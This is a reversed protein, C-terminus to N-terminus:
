WQLGREYVWDRGAMDKKAKKRFQKLETLIAPLLSPVDQAFKYTKDGIKFTEYTIGEINGYRREDMVYTSYCLNHATMISPYLAEFDLATIPTYYAGKQAELVTAGEYQEEPLSGYKITPVMYGLERAKKSLQSFVKIQQGREVLFSIPVWTAKAMEVLNLLICMKKMLKHPLLTDKICYEAVEGLKVPDEEVFRAFMEKPPMDIKQDGLYLKSVNNLSYSDLKYGKKVEHFLDFIFRGPMPLLKLFNDGLASSSLKKQVMHSETNKLRGLQYFELGCGNMAARRYIYELDFGFINWGTLIDIDKQQVYDKFALILERETKFSTVDEGTTDKYCLCTKEYPEDSGFKCLSIAIQFCADGPVNPDPFKGTSSNCEIDFSAWLLLPSMM